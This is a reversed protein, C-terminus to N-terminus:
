ISVSRKIARRPSVSYVIKAHFRCIAPVQLKGMYMIPYGYSTITRKTDFEANLSSDTRMIEVHVGKLMEHTFSDMVRGYFAVSDRANQASVGQFFAILLLLTYFRVM